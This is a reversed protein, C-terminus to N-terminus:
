KQFIMFLKSLSMQYKTKHLKQDLSLLRQLSKSRLTRLKFIKPKRRQLQRLFVKEKQRHLLNKERRHLVLKRRKWIKRNNKSFSRSNPRNIRLSRRDRRM